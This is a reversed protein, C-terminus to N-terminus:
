WSLWKVNNRRRCIRNEKQDGKCSNSNVEVMLLLFSCMCELKIERRTFARQLLPPDLSGPTGGELCGRAWCGATQPNTMMELGCAWMKISNHPATDPVRYVISTMSRLWGAEQQTRSKPLGPHRSSSCVSPVARRKGLSAATALPELGNLM